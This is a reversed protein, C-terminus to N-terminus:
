ADDWVIQPMKTLSPESPCPYVYEKTELRLDEKLDYIDVEFGDVTLALAAIHTLLHDVHWQTM